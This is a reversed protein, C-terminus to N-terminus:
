GCVPLCELQTQVLRVLESTYLVFLLPGLVSGQPVGSLIPRPSTQSSRFRVYQSRDSLYSQFWSIATSTLGFSCQLRCLLTPHDVTDFASSLDSFSILSLLGSDVADALDSLM